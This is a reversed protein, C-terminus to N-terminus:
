QKFIRKQYVQNNRDIVKILYIGSEVHELDILNRDTKLIEKGSMDLVIVQQINDSKIYVFRHTPNPYVVGPGESLGLIPEIVIIFDEKTLSNFMRDNTITLTVDFSGVENYTVQPSALGSTSPIGGEFSWTRTDYDGTSNDSFTVSNDIEIEILDSDFEPIIAEGYSLEWGEGRNTSNTEFNLYLTNGSAIFFTDEVVGSLEVLLESDANSGDYVRLFDSNEETDFNEIFVVLQQVESNVILWECDLNNGYQKVGSGDEFSGTAESLVHLGECTISENVRIYNELTVSDKNVGDSAVFTVDFLGFEDYTVLPTESTSESPSGGEFYWKWQTVDGTSNDTFQIADGQDIETDSSSFSATIENIVSYELEFGVDRVAADSVFEIFVVNTDSEVLPVSQNFGTFEEILTGTNDSGEYIRLYDANFQIDHYLVKISIGTGIGPRIVWGCNSNNNYNSDGSQDTIKGSVGNLTTVGECFIEEYVLIHSTKTLAKSDVGDSVTLTVNYAGEEDYVVSPNQDSSTAPEGGEFVWSWSVPEGTSLDTYSVEENVLIITDSAIFNARLPVFTDYNLEWGTSTITDNTSFELFLKNGSSIFDQDTLTGTLEAILDANEDEGDYIRVFDNNSELDFSTFTLQIVEGEPASFTWSCNLENDYNEVGSGDELTGTGSVDVNGSCTLINKVYIYDEKIITDAEADKKIILTVDYFGPDNYSVLPNSEISTVPDGGEFTWEFSDPDGLSENFFSVTNDEFIETNNASFDAILTGEDM